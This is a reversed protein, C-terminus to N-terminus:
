LVAAIGHGTRRGSAGVARGTKGMAHAPHKENYYYPFRTPSQDRTYVRGVGVGIEHNDRSNTLRRCQTVLEENRPSDRECVCVCVGGGGM